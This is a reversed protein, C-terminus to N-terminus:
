NWGIKNSTNINIMSFIFYVILNIIKDYNDM